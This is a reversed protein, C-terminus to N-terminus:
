RLRLLISRMKGVETWRRWCRPLNCMFDFLESIAAAANAAQTRAAQLSFGAWVASAGLGATFARLDTWSSKMMQRSSPLFNLDSFRWRRVLYSMLGSSYRAM